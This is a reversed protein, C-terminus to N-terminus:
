SESVDHTVRVLLGLSNLQMRGFLRRSPLEQLATQLQPDVKYAAVWRDHTGMTVELETGSLAMLEEADMDQSKEEIKRQSRSLANAVINAKGPNYKIIPKISHFLGLRMWRTQARTLVPQDMIRILTQHDALITTGELCSELYRQWSQLCYVM